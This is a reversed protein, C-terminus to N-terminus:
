RFIPTTSECLDLGDILWKAVVLETTPKMRDEGGVSIKDTCSIQGYFDTNNHILKKVCDLNTQHTCGRASGAQCNADKFSSFLAVCDGYTDVLRDDKVIEVKLQPANPTQGFLAQYATQLSALYNPVKALQAKTADFSWAPVQLKLSDSRQLVLDLQPKLADIEKQYESKKEPKAKLMLENLEKSYTALRELSETWTSISKSVRDGAESQEAQMALFASAESQLSRQMDRNVDRPDRCASMGLVTILASVAFLFKSGNLSTKNIKNMKNVRM